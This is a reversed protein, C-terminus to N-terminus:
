PAIRKGRVYYWIAAAALIGAVLIGAISFPKATQAASTAELNTLSKRHGAEREVDRKQDREAKQVVEMSTPGDPGYEVTSGIFRYTRKGAKVENWWDKWADIEEPTIVGKIDRFPPHEIGLARIIETALEAHSARPGYDAGPTKLLTGLLSKGDRGVPDNLFHGLVSVTEASPMFKLTRLAVEADSLYNPEDLVKIGEDRLKNIELPNKKSNIVSGDWLSLM